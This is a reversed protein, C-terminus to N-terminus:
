PRPFDDPTDLDTLIADTGVELEYVLDAHLAMLQRAGRDGSLRYFEDRLPMPWLVPNGRRGGYVPVVIRGAAPEEFAAIMADIVTPPVFPMDGLAVVFGDIGDPLSNVGSILSTSLGDTFRVNETITVSLEAVTDRIRDAAHGTVVIVPEAQSACVAEVTRRVVPKGDLLTLLKNAPMRSSRGAALVIAAIRPRV